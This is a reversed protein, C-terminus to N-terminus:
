RASEATYRVFQELALVFLAAMTFMMVWGPLQLASVVALGSPIAQPTATTCIFNAAAMGTYHMACVAGGMLCAALVRIISTRTNFALWLAVIAVVIAILTSLGIISYSWDIFGGFRMGFMGLYHMVVVGVGLLFGAVVLREIRRPSAAVYALAIATAVVAAILSILTEFMSYSVGVHLQLALMGIFHMAWVGIGGLALGATAAHYLNIRGGPRVIRRAAILAVYSGAVSVFYSLAVMPADYSPTLLTEM